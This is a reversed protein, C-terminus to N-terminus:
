LLMRCVFEIVLGDVPGVREKIFWFSIFFFLFVTKLDVVFLTLNRDYCVLNRDYVRPNILSSLKDNGGHRYGQEGCVTNMLIQM